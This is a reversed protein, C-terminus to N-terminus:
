RRYIVIERRRHFRTAICCFPQATGYGASKSEACHRRNSTLCNCSDPACKFTHCCTCYACTHAKFIRHRGHRGNRSSCSCIKLTQRFFSFFHACARFICSCFRSICHLIHCHGSPFSRVHKRTNVSDHIQGCCRATIQCSRRINHRIGQCCKSFLSFVTSFKSIYQCGSRCICIRIDIQHTFGKFIDTGYSACHAVRNLVNRKGSAKHRITGDFSAGGTRGEARSNRTHCLWRFFGTHCHRCQTKAKSIGISIHLRKSLDHFVHSFAHLPHCLVFLCGIRSHKATLLCHRSKQCNCICAIFVEILKGIRDVVCSSRGLLHCVDFHIIDLAIDCFQLRRQFPKSNCSKLLYIVIEATKNLINLISYIFKVM